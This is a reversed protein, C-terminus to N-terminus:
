MEEDLASRQVYSGEARRSPGSAWRCTFKERRTTPESSTHRILHLCAVQEKFPIVSVENLVMM